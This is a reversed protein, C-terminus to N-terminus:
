TTYELQAQMALRGQHDRAWLALRGKDVERGCVSFRHIDFIPQV